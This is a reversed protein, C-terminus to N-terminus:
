HADSGVCDIVCNRPYSLRSITQAIHVAYPHALRKSSEEEFLDKGECNVSRPVPLGRVPM